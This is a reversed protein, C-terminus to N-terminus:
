ALVGRSAGRTRGRQEDAGCGCCARVDVAVGRGGVTRSVDRGDQRVRVGGNDSTFVVITDDTLKLEDLADLLRGVQEDVGAIHRLYDLHVANDALGLPFADTKPDKQHFVAPVGCNPTPRTTETAYLKRLHEPLVNGGSPPRFDTHLSRGGWSTKIILVPENLRKEMTLGFIYEPGIRQGETGFAGFGVTLKGTQERLDDYANGQCGVSTIWVRDCVKQKGDKDRMDKLLPATRPDDALSDFTAVNAHGQM